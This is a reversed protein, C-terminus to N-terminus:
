CCQQLYNRSPNTSQQRGPMSCVAAYSGLVWKFSSHMVVVDGFLIKYNKGVKMGGGLFKGEDTSSYYIARGQLYLSTVRGM